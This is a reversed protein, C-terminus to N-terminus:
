DDCGLRLDIEVEQETGDLTIESAASAGGCNPYSAAVLFDGAWLQLAYRGDDGATQQRVLADGHFARVVAGSAAFPYEGTQTQGTVAGVVRVTPGVPEISATDIPPTSPAATDHGSPATQCALVLLLFPSTM